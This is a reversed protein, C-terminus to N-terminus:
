STPKLKKFEKLKKRDTIVKVAKRAKNDGNTLKDISAAVKRVMDLARQYAKTHEPDKGKSAADKAEYVVQKIGTKLQLSKSTPLGQTKRALAM